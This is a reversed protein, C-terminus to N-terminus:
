SLEYRHEMLKTREKLEKLTIKNSYDNIFEFLLRETKDLKLEFDVTKPTRKILDKAYLDRDILDYTALARLALDQFPSIRMFIDRSNQVENFRNQEKITKFRGWATPLTAKRLETPFLIFYDYIKIRDRSYEKLPINALIKLIRAVCHYNDFAPHYILM